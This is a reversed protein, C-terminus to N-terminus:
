SAIKPLHVHQGSPVRKRDYVGVVQTRAPHPAGAAICTSRHPWHMCLTLRPLGVWLDFKRIKYFFLRHEQSFV